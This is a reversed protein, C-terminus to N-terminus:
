EWKLFDVLWQDGQKILQLSLVRTSIVPQTSTSYEELQLNVKVLATGAAENFEILQPSLARGTVGHYGGSLPYQAILTQQQNKLFNKVQPTAQRSVLDLNSFNDENSWSAFREAWVRAMVTVGLQAAPLPTTSTSILGAGISETTSPTISVNNVPETNFPRSIVWWWVLTAILAIILLGIIIFVLRKNNM